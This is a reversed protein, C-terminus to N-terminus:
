WDTPTPVSFSHSRPLYNQRAGEMVVLHLSVILRVAEAHM